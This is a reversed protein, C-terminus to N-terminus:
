FGRDPSMYDIGQAGKNLEKQYGNKYGVLKQIAVEIDGDQMSRYLAVVSPFLFQLIYPDRIQLAQTDSLLRTPQPYYWLRYINTSNGADETFVYRARVGDAADYTRVYPFRYYNIGAIKIVELRNLGARTHSYWGYDYNEFLNELISGPQDSEVLVGAIRWCDAPAEYDFVGQQTTILPLRGTAGTFIVNQEAEVSLLFNQVIDTLFIISVPSGDRNIGDVASEVLACFENTNM